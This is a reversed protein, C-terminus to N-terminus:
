RCSATRKIWTLCSRLHIGLEGLEQQLQDKDVAPINMIDYKGDTAKLFGAFDEIEISSLQKEKVMRALFQILKITGITTLRFVPDAYRFVNHIQMIVENTNRSLDDM